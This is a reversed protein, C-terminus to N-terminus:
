ADMLVASRVREWPDRKATVAEIRATLPAGRDLLLAVARNQTRPVYGLKHGNWGIRM